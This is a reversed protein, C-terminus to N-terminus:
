RIFGRRYKPPHYIFSAFILLPQFVTCSNLTQSLFGLDALNAQMAAPCSLLHSTLNLDFSPQDGLRIHHDEGVSCNSDVVLCIGSYSEAREIAADIYNPAALVRVAMIFAILFFSM